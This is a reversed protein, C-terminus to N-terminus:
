SCKSSGNRFNDRWLRNLMEIISLKGNTALKVQNEGRFKSVSINEIQIASHVSVPKIKNNWLCLRIAGTDNAIFGNSPYAYEGIRTFVIKPKPVDLVRAKLNIRKIGSRLEQIYMPNEHVDQNTTKGLFHTHKIEKIQKQRDLSHMPVYFEAAVEDCDAILFVDYKRAKQRCQIV